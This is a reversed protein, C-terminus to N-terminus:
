MFHTAFLGDLASGCHDAYIGADTHSNPYSKNLSTNTSNAIDIRSDCTSHIFWSLISEIWLKVDAESALQVLLFRM